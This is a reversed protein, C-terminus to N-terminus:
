KENLDGEKKWAVEKQKLGHAMAISYASGEFAIFNDLDIDEIYDRSDDEFIRILKVIKKKM